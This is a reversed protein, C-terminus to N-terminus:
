HLLLARGIQNQTWHDAPDQLRFGVPFRYFSAHAGIGIPNPFHAMFQMWHAPQKEWGHRLFLTLGTWIRLLSLGIQPREPLFRMLLTNKPGVV